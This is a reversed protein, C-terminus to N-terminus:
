STRRRSGQNSVFREVGAHSPESSVPPASIRGAFEKARLGRRRKAIEREAYRNLATLRRTVARARSRWANAIMGMLALGALAQPMVWHKAM